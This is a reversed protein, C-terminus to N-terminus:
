VKKKTKTLTKSQEDEAMTNTSEEDVILTTDVKPRAVYYGNEVLHKALLELNEEQQKQEYLEVEKQRAELVLGWRKEIEDADLYIDQGYVVREIESPTLFTDYVETYFQTLHKKDFEVQAYIEQGKGIAGGSYQHIMFSTHPMIILSDCQLAIITGASAVTGMCIGIVEAKTEYIGALIAKATHLYGGPTNLILYIKDGDKATDFVELLENYEFAEEIPATLYCRFVNSDGETFHIIPVHKEYLENTDPTTTVRHSRM